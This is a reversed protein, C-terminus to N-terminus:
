SKQNKKANQLPLNLILEVEGKPLDLKRSIDEANLGTKALKAAESYKDEESLISENKNPGAELQNKIQEILLEAKKAEGQLQNKKIELHDLLEQTKKQSLLAKDSIDISARESETILRDLSQILEQTEKKKLNVNLKEIKKRNKLDFIYFLIAILILLDVVAQIAIWLTIM